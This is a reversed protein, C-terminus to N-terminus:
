VDSKVVVLSRSISGDPSTITITVRQVLGEPRQAGPCAGTVWEGAEAPSNDGPVYHEYTATALSSQWDNELAAAQVFVDYDCSESARNVRDAANVLVTEVEAIMNGSASVRLSTIGALMLPVVALAVLAVAVVAEVLSFGVDAGAKRADGDRESDPTPPRQPM